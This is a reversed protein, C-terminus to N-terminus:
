FSRESIETSIDEHTWACARSSGFEPRLLDNENPTLKWEM